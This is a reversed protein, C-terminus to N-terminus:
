QFKNCSCNQLKEKYVSYMIETSYIEKLFLSEKQTNTLFGLKRGLEATRLGSVCYVATNINRVLVSCRTYVNQISRGNVSIKRVLM